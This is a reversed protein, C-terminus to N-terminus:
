LLPVSIVQHLLEHAQRTLQYILWCTLWEDEINDGFATSGWLYASSSLSRRKHWPAPGKHLIFADQQWIHGSTQSFAWALSDLRLQELGADTLDATVTDPDAAAPMNFSPKVVRQGAGNSSYLEYDVVNEVDM